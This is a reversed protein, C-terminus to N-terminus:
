YSKKGLQYMTDLMLLYFIGTIIYLLLQNFQDDTTNAFGEVVRNKLNDYEGKSIQIINNVPGSLQNSVPNSISNAMMGHQELIKNNALVTENTREVPNKTYTQYPSVNYGDYGQILSNDTMPESQKYKYRADALNTSPPILIQPDISEDLMKQEDKELRKDKKSKKKKRFDPGWAEELTCYSM